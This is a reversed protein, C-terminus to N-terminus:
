QECAKALDKINRELMCLMLSYNDHLSDKWEQLNWPVVVIIGWM